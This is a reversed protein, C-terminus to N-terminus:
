SHTNTPNQETGQPTGHKSFHRGPSGKIVRPLFPHPHPSTDQLSPAKCLSASPLGSPPLGTGLCPSDDVWLFPLPMAPACTGPRPLQPPLLLLGCQLSLAQSGTTSPPAQVPSLSQVPLFPHAPVLAQLEPAPGPPLTTRSGTPGPAASPQLSEPTMGKLEEARDTRSPQAAEPPLHCSIGRGQSLGLTARVPEGTDRAPCEGPFVPAM